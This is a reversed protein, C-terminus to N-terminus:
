PLDAACRFGITFDTNDPASPFRIASAMFNGSDFWSGGRVVKETGEAPGPPNDQPSNAYYSPGYWDAVWEWVNGAMDFLGSPSLGGAFSAVPAVEPFGDNFDANAQPEDCSADCFNVVGSDFGNGWPYRRAVAATFDWAAAKEWEAETPLRSGRWACYAAAGYWTVGAAPERAAEPELSYGGNQSDIEGQDVELCPQELCLAGSGLENLFALFAENTVEHSDLYYAGTSVTHVPESAAFWAVQCGERFTNCAASLDAASAGMQFAGGPILVMTGGPVEIIAPYPTTTATPPTTPTASPLPTPTDAPTASPPPTSTPVPLPTNTPQVIAAPDPLTTPMAEIVAEAAGVAETTLAETAVSATAVPSAPAKATALVAPVRTELTQANAAATAGWPQLTAEFQVAATSIAAAVDDRTCASQALLAGALVAIALRGVIRHVTHRVETTM